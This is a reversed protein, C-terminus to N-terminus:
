VEPLRKIAIRRQSIESKSRNNYYTQQQTPQTTCSFHGNVTRMALLRM